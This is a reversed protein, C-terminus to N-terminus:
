RKMHKILKYYVFGEVFNLSLLIRWIRHAVRSSKRLIAIFKEVNSNTESNQIHFNTAVLGLSSWSRMLFMKHDNGNCRNIHNSPLVDQLDTAVWLTTLFPVGIALYWFLAKLKEKGFGVVSKDHVIFIYRLLAVALSHSVVIQVAFSELFWYTVCVWKGSVDMLPHIFDTLTVFILRIPIVTMITCAQLKTIDTLISNDKKMIYLVRFNCIEALIVLVCRVAFFTVATIPEEVPQQYLDIDDITNFYSYNQFDDNRSYFRLASEKFPNYFTQLTQKM